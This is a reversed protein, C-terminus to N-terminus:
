LLAKWNVKAQEMFTEARAASAAADAYVQYAAERKESEKAIAAQHSSKLRERAEQKEQESFRQMIDGKLM